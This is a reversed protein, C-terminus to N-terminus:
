GCCPRPATGGRCRGAAARSHGHGSYSVPAPQAEPNDIVLRDNFADQGNFGSPHAGTAVTGSVGDNLHPVPAITTPDKFDRAMLTPSVNEEVRMFSGTTM